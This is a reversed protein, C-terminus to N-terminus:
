SALGNKKFPTFTNNNHIFSTGGWVYPIVQNKIVINQLIAQACALFRKKNTPHTELISETTIRRDLTEKIFTDTTFSRILITYKKIEQFSEELQDILDIIFKTGISYNNWSHLLTVQKKKPNLEPIISWIQNKLSLITGNIKETVLSIYKKETKKLLESIVTVWEDNKEIICYCENFLGQHIRNCPKEAFCVGL